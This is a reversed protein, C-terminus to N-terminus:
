EGNFISFYHLKLDLGLGLWLKSLLNILYIPATNDFPVNNDFLDPEIFSRVWVRLSIRAPQWRFVYRSAVLWRDPWPRHLWDLLQRRRCAAHRFPIANTLCSYSILLVGLAGCEPVKM